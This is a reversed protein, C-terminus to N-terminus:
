KLKSKIQNLTKKKKLKNHLKGKDRLLLFIIFLWQEVAALGAQIFVFHIPLCYLQLFHCLCVRFIGDCKIEICNYNKLHLAGISILRQASHAVRNFYNFFIIKM